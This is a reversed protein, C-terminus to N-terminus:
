PYRLGFTVLAKWFELNRGAVESTVWQYEGRLGVVITQLQLEFGGGVPVVVRGAAVDLSAGASYQIWGLGVHLFPVFFRRLVDFRVHGLVGDQSMRVGPFDDLLNQAHQYELELGLPGPFHVGLIASFTTDLESPMERGLAGAGFSGQLSYSLSPEPAQARAVLPGALTFVAAAVALVQRESATRGM